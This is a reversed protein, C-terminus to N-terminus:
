TQVPDNKKKKIILTNKASKDVIAVASTVFEIELPGQEALIKLMSIELENKPILILQTSGNTIFVNEM